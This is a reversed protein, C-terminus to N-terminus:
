KWSRLSGDYHGTYMRGDTVLLSIVASKTKKVVVQTEEVDPNWIIINGVWNAVIVLGNHFAIASLSSPSASIERSSHFTGEIFEWTRM